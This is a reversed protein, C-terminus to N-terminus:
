WSFRAALALQKMDVVLLLRWPRRAHLVACGIPPRASALLLAVRAASWRLPVNSGRVSPPTARQFTTELLHEDCVRPDPRVFVRFRLPRPALVTSTGIM